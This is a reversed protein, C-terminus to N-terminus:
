TCMGDTQKDQFTCDDLVDTVVAIYHAVQWTAEPFGGLRMVWKHGYSGGVLGEIAGTKHSCFGREGRVTLVM